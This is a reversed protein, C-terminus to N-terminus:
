RTHLACKGKCNRGDECLGGTRAEDEIGRAYLRVLQGHVRCFVPLFGTFLLVLERKLKLKM